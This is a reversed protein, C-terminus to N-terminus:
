RSAVPPQPLLLYSRARWRGLLRRTRVYKIRGTRMLVDERWPYVCIIRVTRPRRDVSEVLHRVFQELTAGGFPNFLFLVTVDDLENFDLIDANVFQIEGCRQRERIREANAVAITHLRESMEVGIVKRFPYHLGAELVMRGMGSGADLFVDRNSVDGRPLLLRLLLWSSPEYFLADPSDVDLQEVEIREETHVGYRRDFLWTALVHRQWRYVRRLLSRATSRRWRTGRLEHDHATRPTRLIEM